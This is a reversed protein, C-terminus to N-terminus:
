FAMKTDKIFYFGNRKEVVCDVWCNFKTLMAAQEEHKKRAADNSYLNQAPGFFEKGLGDHTYLLIRYYNNNNQTSVDKVLFQVQHILNGAAGKAGKLSTSFIIIEVPKFKRKKHRRTM